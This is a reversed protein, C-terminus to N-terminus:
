KTELLLADMICTPTFDFSQSSAYSRSARALTHPMFNAQRRILSVKLKAIFM